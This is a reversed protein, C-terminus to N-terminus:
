MHGLPGAFTRAARTDPVGGAVTTAWMYRWRLAVSGHVRMWYIAELSQEFLGLRFAAPQETNRGGINAREHQVSSRDAEFNLAVTPHM